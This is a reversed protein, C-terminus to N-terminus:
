VSFGLDRVLPSRNDPRIGWLSCNCPTAGTSNSLISQLLVGVWVGLGKFNSGVRFGVRGLGQVRSELGYLGLVSFAKFQARVLGPRPSASGIPELRKRQCTLLVSM